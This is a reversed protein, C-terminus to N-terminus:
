RTQKERHRSEYLAEQEPTKQMMMQVQQNIPICEIKHFTWDAQQCEVSCYRLKCVACLKKADPKGCKVCEGADIYRCYCSPMIPITKSNDLLWETCYYVIIADCFRTWLTTDKYLEGTNKNLAMLKSAENLRRIEDPTSDFMEMLTKSDTKVIVDKYGLSTASIYLSRSTTDDILDFNIFKKEEM